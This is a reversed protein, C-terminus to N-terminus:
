LLQIDTSGFCFSLTWSTLFTACAMVASNFLITIPNRCFRLSACLAELAALLVAAEGGYLLMTLFIFTDSVTIQSTLRPIRVILCPGLVIAILALIIFHLDTPGPSSTTFDYCSVSTILGGTGIILWMYAKSFAKRNMVELRVPVM